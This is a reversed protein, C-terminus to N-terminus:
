NIFKSQDWDFEKKEKIDMWRLKHHPRHYSKKLFKTAKAETSFGYEFPIPNGSLKQEVVYM